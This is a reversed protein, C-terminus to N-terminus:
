WIKVRDQPDLWMEDDENVAFVDVFDDINKVIQNCRFETPSHPDISLLRIAEEQRSKTKWINAWSFFIRQVGNYGDITDSYPDIGKSSQALKYAKIAISLGGLDGINEGLTLSGNVHYNESANELDSLEFPICKDYQEVLKSTRKEFKEKDESSWWDNLAGTHDYKSGQDDFGHGIEHGIVAGIAGYNTADDANVDFFPSQLIAAPFVIENLMPHYYANVTQPTMHWEDRDINKGVKSLMFDFDYKMSEFIIEVLSLGDLKLNEYEKWKNQYGIKYVFTGLKQLAKQKTEESMWDLETISIRYAELLNAVLEEMKKKNEEPFHREVYLKGILDPVCSEVLSVARKWRPRIEDTGSLVKGYFNFNENVFKDDLYPAYTHLVNWIMWTKVVEVDEELFVKIGEEFFSPTMCIVNDFASGIEGLGLKWEEWSFATNLNKLEDWTMPNNMLDAQRSKVRDWHHNAIKNEFAYVKDANRDLGYLALMNNIHEVYAEQIPRYQESTYFSEDPLGLGSQGFFIIYKDPNNLDSEADFFFLPKVGLKTNKAMIRSLETIDEASHIEEIMPTIDKDGRNAVSTEDMFTSYITAIKRSKDNLEGTNAKEVIEKIIEHVDKESKELLSTFAGERSRDPSIKHNKIWNGNIFRYLDDQIRVDVDLNDTDVIGAFKSM